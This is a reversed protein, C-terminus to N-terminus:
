VSYCAAAEKLREAYKYVDNVDSISIKEESREGNSHVFLGLRKNDSKNFYLRCIPKRNNDDLLVNFYSMTDRQVIRAPDVVQCLIAKVIYFAELEEDTTVILRNDSEEDSIKPMDEPVNPTSEEDALDSASQLLGSIQERLFQKFARKVFASFEKKVRETIRGSYIQTAFFKVFDESPENLQETLIRRIERTYKLESAANLIEDIDFSQKTLKQLEIILQDQLDLMNIELFPKKDLKNVEVLDSYFRYTLGNTM